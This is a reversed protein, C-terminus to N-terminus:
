IGSGKRSKANGSGKRSEAKGSGKQSEAKGSGEQSEAKGSGEQFEANFKLDEEEMEARMSLVHDHNLKAKAAARLIKAVTPNPDEEPEKKKQPAKANKKPVSSGGEDSGSEVTLDIVEVKKPAKEVRAVPGGEDSEVKKKKPEPTKERPPSQGAKTQSLSPKPRESMEVLSKPASTKGQPRSMRRLPAFFAM